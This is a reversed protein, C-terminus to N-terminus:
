FLINTKLLVALATAQLPLYIISNPSQELRPHADSIQRSIYIRWQYLITMNRLNFSGDEQGEQNKINQKWKTHM